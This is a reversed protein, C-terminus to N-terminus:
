RAGVPAGAVVRQWEKLSPQGVALDEVSRWLRPAQEASPLSDLKVFAVEGAGFVVTPTGFVGLAAGTGHGAAVRRLAWGPDFSGLGAARGFGVIDDVSLRGYREHEDHWASFMQRRYAGLDGGAQALSEYVALAVLSVNGALEPREFVPPGDDHRNVELLSFPKWTVDLGPLGDIWHRARNSYECTFDFYVVVPRGPAKDTSM